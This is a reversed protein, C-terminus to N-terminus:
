KQSIGDVAAYIKSCISTKPGIQLFVASKVGSKLVQAMAILPIRLDYLILHEGLMVPRQEDHTPSMKKATLLPKVNLGVQTPSARFCEQDHEARVNCGTIVIKVV